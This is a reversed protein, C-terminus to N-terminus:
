NKLVLNWFRLKLVFHVCINDYEPATLNICSFNKKIFIVRQSIKRYYRIKALFINRLSLHMAGMPSFRCFEDSWQLSDSFMVCQLYVSVLLVNDKTTAQLPFARAKLLCRSLTWSVEYVKNSCKPTNGRGANESEVDPM